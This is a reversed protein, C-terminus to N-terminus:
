QVTVQYQFTHRVTNVGDTGSTTITYNQTGLPTGPDSPTTGTASSSTTTNANSLGTGCGLNATFGIAILLLFLAAPSRRRPLLFFLLTAFTIGTASIWRHSAQNGTRSVRPATTSLTLTTVAGGTVSAPSFNCTAESNAPPTCGFSVTGSFDGSYAVTGTAQVSKGQTVALTSPTMTLSFDSLKLVVVVSTSPAYNADGSYVAYLNHTGPLLGTSNFLGIAANPGNSILTAPSGLQVFSGNFTDYFTVTGTPGSNYTISTSVTGTLVINSGALAGLPNSVSTSLNITSPLITPTVAVAGSTSTSWNSDGTYTATLNHTRNGSLALSTTAQNTAVPAIGILKGSDYFSISGGFTYAGIGNGSNSVVATLSIPQGAQPAAPTVSINTSTNGKISTFPLNIPTQCQFNSNGACTVSVTYTGPSPVSVTINATASNGGPNPSLTASYSAGTVGQFQASVSGSPAASTGPLTVTATVTATAGFPVQTTPSIVAILNANVISVTITVNSTSASGSYVTDGTYTATLSYTGVPLVGATLTATGNSVTATGLVGQQSSTFTITGTPLTAAYTTPLVQSTLTFTNGYSIAYISSVLSTTTGNLGRPFVKILKQLDINGLGTAPQWVGAPFDTEVAPTTSLATDTQTYLGPTPALAYLTANINGQRTGAQRLITTLASTFDATSTTTLDPAHRLTDAPLGPAAQWTPRPVIGTTLAASASPSLTLATVEPLSAPFGPSGAADAPCTDTTLITIGQVNAQQLLTAYAAQDAAPIDTSCANSTLTLIPSTNSDIATALSVLPDPAATAASAAPDALNIAQARLHAPATPDPSLTISATPPLDDLGSIGAVLPAIDPPLTPRTTTAFSLTGSRQVSAESRQVSVESLQVQHMTTALAAQANAVTGSVTLRTRSPSLATVTLGHAELWATLTALRPDAIGFRAAFQAPTLWQHFAPSTPNLQSLLLQKLDASQAETPALHLTLNLPQSTPLQGADLALPAIETLTRAAIPVRQARAADIFLLTFILGLVFAFAIRHRQPLPRDDNHTAMIPIM